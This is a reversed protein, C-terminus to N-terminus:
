TRLKGVTVRNIRSSPARNYNKEYAALMDSTLARKEVVHHMEDFLDNTADGFDAVLEVQCKLCFESEELSPYLSCRVCRNEATGHFDQFQMSRLLEEGEERLQDGLRLVTEKDWHDGKVERACERCVNKGSALQFLKGCEACRSLERSNLDVM